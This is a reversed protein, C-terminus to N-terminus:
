ASPKPVGLVNEYVKAVEDACKSWSFRAARALGANRRQQLEASQTQAEKIIDATSRCFDAVDGSPCYMAVEGAVERLAPLDSCIVPLGCAMAELVPLGFGERDSPLLLLTSARYIATLLRDDLFPLTMVLGDVGLQRALAQQEATLAGGAQLLVCDPFNGRVEAFVHLLIDMRKRPITSGVHLLKTRHAHAQLLQEAERDATADPQPSFVPAVGLRIVSMREPHAWGQALLDDATAGSDCIVWAAKQLGSVIRATLRRLVRRRLTQAPELLCRFADIDHCTVITREAPLHHVLHAYSHDVVHFLDFRRKQQSLWRPYRVFRNFVRGAISGTHHPRKGSPRLRETVVDSAHNQQLTELLMDGVLDMSAWDEELLDCVIGVRPRDM